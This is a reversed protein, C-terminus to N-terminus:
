EQVHLFFSFQHINLRYSWRKRVFVSEIIRWNVAFGAEERQHGQEELEGLLLGIRPRMPVQEPGEIRVFVRPSSQWMSLM